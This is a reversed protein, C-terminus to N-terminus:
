LREIRVGSWQFLESEYLDRTLIILGYGGM